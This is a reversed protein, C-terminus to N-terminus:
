NGEIIKGDPLILRNNWVQFINFNFSNDSHLNIVGFGNSWNTERNKIYEPNLECFAPLSWSQVTNGRVVFSKCGVYHVHSFIVSKGGAAEYHKKHCTTGHYMGHTISLKTGIDLWDNYDVVKIGREKLRLKLRYNFNHAFDPSIKSMFDRYRWDHNGEVFIIETFERQLIDLIHNGWKLEEESKPIFFEDMGDSRKIWKKYLPSRSMLHPADLFDGNIILKRKKKPIKRAMSLMIKFSAEHLAETHWDGAIFYTFIEGKVPAKIESIKM